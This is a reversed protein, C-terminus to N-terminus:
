VSIGNLKPSGSALERSLKPTTSGSTDPGYTGLLEVGLGQERELGKTVKEVARILDYNIRESVASDHKYEPHNQIFHRMWKATTWLKGTVTLGPFHSKHPPVARANPSLVSIDALKVGRRSILM